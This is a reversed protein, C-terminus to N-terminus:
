QVVRALRLVAKFDANLAKATTANIVPQPKGNTVGVGLLAGENVAAADLALSYVKATRSWTLADARADAPLVPLLLVTTPKKAELDRVLTSLAADLEDACEALQACLKASMVNMKVQSARERWSTSLDTLVSM